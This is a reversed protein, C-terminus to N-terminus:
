GERAPRWSGVTTKIFGSGSALGFGIGGECAAVFWRDSFSSRECAATPRTVRVRDRVRVRVKVM